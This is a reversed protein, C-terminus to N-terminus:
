VNYTYVAWRSCSPDKSNRTESRLSTKTYTHAMTSKLLFLDIKILNQLNEM